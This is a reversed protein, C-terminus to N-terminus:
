FGIECKSSEIMACTDEVKSYQCLKLNFKLQISFCKVNYFHIHDRDTGIYMNESLVHEFIYNRYNSKCLLKKLLKSLIVVKIILSMIM